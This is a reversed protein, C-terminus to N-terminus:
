QAEKTPSLFASEHTGWGLGWKSLKQDGPTFLTSSQNYSQFVKEYRVVGDDWGEQPLLAFLSGPRPLLFPLPILPSYM